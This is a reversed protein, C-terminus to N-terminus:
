SHYIQHYKTLYSSIREFQTKNTEIKLFSKLEEFSFDDIIGGLSSNLFSSSLAVNSDIELILTEDNKIAKAIVCYLKVGEVNTDTNSVINALSIKAQTKM